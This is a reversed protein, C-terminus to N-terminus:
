AFLFVWLPSSVSSWLSSTSPLRRTGLLWAGELGLMGSLLCRESDSKIWASFGRNWCRRGDCADLGPCCFGHVGLVPCHGRGRAPGGQGEPEELAGLSPQSHTLSLLYPALATIRPGEEPRARRSTVWPRTSNRPSCIPGTKWTISDVRLHLSM